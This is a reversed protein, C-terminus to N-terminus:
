SRCARRRRPSGATRGARADVRRHVDERGVALHLVVRQLQAHVAAHAIADLEGHRIRERLRNVPPPRGNRNRFVEVQVLSLGASRVPQVRRQNVLQREAAALPPEVVVAHQRLDGAAPLHVREEAHEDPVSTVTVDLALTSFAGARGRLKGVLDLVTGTSIKPSAPGLACYKSTLAYRDTVCTRNPLEPWPSHLPGVAGFTSM